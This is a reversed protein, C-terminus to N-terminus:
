RRYGRFGGLRQEDPWIAPALRLFHRFTPTQYEYAGIDVTGGAIRPNGDFDNTITVFSNNGSNICPSNNLLHFDGGALDALSPENTINGVGDDPTPTTCCYNLTCGIYYQTPPAFNPGDPATNFYVICNNLLSQSAGGGSSSASNGALTCNNFTSSDAGGGIYDASNGTLLCNALSSFDAGGGEGGEGHFLVASNNSLTCSTLTSGSVGGGYSGSNGSLICQNLTSSDAGGGGIAAANSSLVCSQLTGSEAGGGYYASNGSLACNTM